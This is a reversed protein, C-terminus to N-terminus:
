NVQIRNVEPFLSLVGKGIPSLQFPLEGVNKDSSPYRDQGWFTPIV